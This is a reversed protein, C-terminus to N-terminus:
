VDDYGAYRGKQKNMMDVFKEPTTSGDYDNDVEYYIENGRMTVAFSGDKADIMLRDEGGHQPVGLVSGSPDTFKKGDWSWKGSGTAEGVQAAYPNTKGLIEEGTKVAMDLMSLDDANLEVDVNQGRDVIKSPQLLYVWVRKGGVTSVQVRKYQDEWDDLVDMEKPTLHLVQGKTVSGEDSVLTHYDQGLLTDVSIERFGELADVEFQVDRQLLMMRMKRNMLTEFVFVLETADSQEDGGAPTADGDSEIRTMARACQRVEELLTGGRLPVVRKM